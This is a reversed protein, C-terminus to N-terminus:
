VRRKKLGHEAGKGEPPATQSRGHEKKGGRGVDRVGNRGLIKQGGKGITTQM